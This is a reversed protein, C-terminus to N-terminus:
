RPVYQHAATGTFVPTLLYGHHEGDDTTATIVIQGRDNVDHAWSTIWSSSEPVLDHLSRMTGNRWIFAEPEVATDTCGVITGWSNIASAESWRGLSGLAEIQGNRWRVATLELDNPDTAAGVIVGRNNIDRARSHSGGLTGLDVIVGDSWLFARTNDDADTTDGVFQARNNIAYVQTNFSDGGLSLPGLDIMGIARHWLFTNVEGDTTDSLGVVLGWDNISYATSQTGGPLTGLDELADRSWLVARVVQDDVLTSLGVIDGRRNIDRAISQEGGLTALPEIADPETRFAQLFPSDATGAVQGRNNIANPVTYAFGPLPGLETVDYTLRAEVFDRESDNPQALVAFSCSCSVALALVFSRQRSM